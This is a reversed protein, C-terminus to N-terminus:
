SNAQRYMCLLGTQRVTVGFHIPLCGLGMHILFSSLCETSRMGGGLRLLGGKSVILCLGTFSV